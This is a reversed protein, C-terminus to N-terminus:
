FSSRRAPSKAVTPTATAGKDAVYYFRGGITITVGTDAGAATTTYTTIGATQGALGADNFCQNFVGRVDNFEM